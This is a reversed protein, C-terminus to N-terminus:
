KHSMSLTGDIDIAFALPHSPNSETIPNVTQSYNQQAEM